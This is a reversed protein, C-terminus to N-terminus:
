LIAAFFMSTKDRKINTPKCLKAKHRLWCKHSDTKDWMKDVFSRTGKEEMVSRM